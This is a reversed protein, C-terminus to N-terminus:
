RAGGLALLAGLLLGAGSTDGIGLVAEASRELGDRDAGAMAALVARFQPVAEGRSACALLTASLTTTRLTAEDSVADRVDDLAERGSAVAAALWGCLVDDGLPTLGPGLGLLDRVARPDGAALRHLTQDPLAARVADLRGDLREALRATGWTAGGATLVPVTADVVATVLVACGPLGVAGDGVSADGGPGPDPLSPLSTRVGCPVHVADRALVALCSGGLDLYVASRGAHLVPARRPPGALQAAVWPSAAGATRVASTTITM